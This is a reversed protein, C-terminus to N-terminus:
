RLRVANVGLDRLIQAAAYATAPRTPIPEGPAKAEEAGHWAPPAAAVSGLYLLVGGGAKAMREAATALETGLADELPRQVHIAILPPGAGLPDGVVVAFHRTRSSPDVYEYAQQVGQPTAVSLAGVRVVVKEERMRRDAVEETTVLPVGQRSSFASLEALGMVAGADDLAHCLAAAPDLGAARLLDIAAEACGPHELVGGAAARIPIVHGPTVLDKPSSGPDGALRITRARDAASIGTTIGDRAEITNLYEPGGQRARASRASTLELAECREATLGVCTLGRGHTIMWNVVDATAHEAAACLMGEAMATSIGAVAIPQGARLAEIARDTVDSAAVVALAARSDARSSM